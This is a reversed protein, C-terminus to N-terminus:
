GGQRRLDAALRVALTVLTFTPNAHSSTPFVASSVVRVNDDGHVRLDADVVGDAAVRSMRALGIIHGGVPTAHTRVLEEVGGDPGIDLTAVRSAALQDRVLRLNTAISALDQDTCRWDMAVKPVGFRDRTESLFVRSDPNPAQEANFEVVYEGSRNPRAVYPIRRYAFHRKPVWDALFAALSPAGLVINGAHRAWFAMDKPGAAATREVMTIKRRYEPLIFSKALFMASLVPDRHRPDVPNAFHFRMMFNLTKDARQREPAIGLRGRGYVGDHSRPFGWEVRTREDAVKLKAATGEIHTMFYRGLAGSAAGLGEPGGSIRLLRYTELGGCAVVFRGARIAFAGGSLSRILASSIRGSQDRELGVCTSGTLISVRDNSVLRRGWTRGFDTPPSFREFSNSTVDASHFGEMLGSGGPVAKRADFEPLGIECYDAAKAEFPELAGRGIPWGSHAVWDREEFDISDYPICRGGWITSTGGVARRRYLNLPLLTDDGDGESLAEAAANSKFDGSEVLVIKFGSDKLEHAVTLGAPGAGIICIDCDISAHDSVRRGDILM